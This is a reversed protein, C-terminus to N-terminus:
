DIAKKGLPLSCKYQIKSRSTSTCEIHSKHVFPRWSHLPLKLVYMYFQIYPLPLSKQNSNYIKTSCYCTNSQPGQGRCGDRKGRLGHQTMALRHPPGHPKARARDGFCHQCSHPIGWRSWLRLSKHSGPAPESLLSRFLHHQRMNSTAGM